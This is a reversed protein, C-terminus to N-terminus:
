KRSRRPTHPLRWALRSHCGSRRLRDSSSRSSAEGTPASRWRSNASRIRGGSGLSTAPSSGSASARSPSKLATTRAIRSFPAAASSGVRRGPEKGGGTIRALDETLAADLTPAQSPFLSALTDHAAQAIAADLSAGPPAHDQYAYSVWEGALANVADFIAIHVIALARSARGPGFQEGFVRIEGPAVPTHDVGTTDLAIQNWHVLRSRPDFPIPRRGRQAEAAWIANPPVRQPANSHGPAGASPSAYKSGWFGEFGGKGDQALVFAGISSVLALTGVAALRPTGKQM